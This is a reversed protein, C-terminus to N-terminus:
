SALDFLTPKAPDPTMDSRKMNKINMWTRYSIFINHKPFIHNVIFTDPKDYEKISNYIGVIYRVHKIYNNRTYAM